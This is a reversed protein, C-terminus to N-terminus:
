PWIIPKISINREASNSPPRCPTRTSLILLSSSLLQIAVIQSRDSANALIKTSYLADVFPYESLAKEKLYQPLCGSVILFRCKGHEKYKAADRINRDAEELAPAIFSCTNVVIVDADEIRSTIRYGCAATQGLMLELDLQNKPCGLSIFGIELM